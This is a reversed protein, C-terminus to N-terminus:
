VSPGGKGKENAIKEYKKRGRNGEPMAERGKKDARGQADKLFGQLNTSEPGIVAAAKKSEPFRKTQMKVSSQSSPNMGPEKWTGQAMPNHTYNPPVKAVRQEPERTKNLALADALEADKRQREVKALRSTLRAPLPRKQHREEIAISGTRGDHTGATPSPPPTKTARDRSGAGPVMDAYIRLNKPLQDTPVPPAAM